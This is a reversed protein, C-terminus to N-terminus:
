KGPESRRWEEVARARRRLLYAAYGALTTWTLGYAVGIYVWESM